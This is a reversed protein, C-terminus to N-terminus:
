GGSSLDLDPFTDILHRALALGLGPLITRLKKIREIPQNEPVAAVETYVSPQESWFASAVPADKTISGVADALAPRDLSLISLAVGLLESEHTFLRRDENRAEILENCERIKDARQKGLLEVAELLRENEGRESFLEHNAQTFKDSYEDREKCIDDLRERMDTLENVLGALLINAADGTLIWLLERAGNANM